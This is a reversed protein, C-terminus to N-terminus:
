NINKSIKEQDLRKQLDDHCLLVSLAIWSCNKVQVCFCTVFRACNITIHWILIVWGLKETVCVGGGWDVRNMSRTGLARDVM